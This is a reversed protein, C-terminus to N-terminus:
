RGTHTLGVRANRASLRGVPVPEITPELAASIDTM